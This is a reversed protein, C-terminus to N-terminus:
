LIINLKKLESTLWKIDPTKNEKLLDKYLSHFTVLLQLKLKEYATKKSKSVIDYYKLIEPEISNM